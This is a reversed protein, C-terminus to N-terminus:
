KPARSGLFEKVLGKKVTKPRKQACWDSCKACNNVCSLRCAQWIQSENTWHNM